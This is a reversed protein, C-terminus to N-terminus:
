LDTSFSWAASYQKDEEEERQETYLEDTNKGERVVTDNDMLMGVSGM